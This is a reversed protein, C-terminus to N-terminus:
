YIYHCISCYEVVDAPDPSTINQNKHGMMKIDSKVYDPLHPSKYPGVTKGGISSSGNCGTLIALTLVLIMIIRKM